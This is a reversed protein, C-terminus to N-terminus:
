NKLETKRNKYLTLSIRVHRKEKDITIKSKFNLYGLIEPNDTKKRNGFNNYTSTEILTKLQEVVAAKASYMAEGYAIKRGAKSTLVVEKLHKEILAKDNKLNQNYYVLTYRRLEIVSMNKFR